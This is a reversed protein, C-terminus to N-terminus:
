KEFRWMRLLILTFAFVSLGYHFAQATSWDYVIATLGVVDFFVLKEGSYTASKDFYPSSLLQRTLALINEGTRQLTGAPIRWEEDFETHYVYGNRVYAFDMGPIKGHDRFIRFDTDGPFIGSEFIEQAMVSCHPYPASKLYAKLLWLNSPDTQFLLERGGSGSAELNIFAKIDTRWPHQTIFGHSALLISEEAGNFLFIVDRPVAEHKPDTMVRLM